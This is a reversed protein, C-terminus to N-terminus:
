DRRITCSTNNNRRCRRNHRPWTCQSNSLSNRSFQSNYNSNNNCIPKINNNSYTWKSNNSNSLHSPRRPPRRPLPRHPPGYRERISYRLSTPLHLRDRLKISPCIDSPRPSIARATELPSLPSLIRARPATFNDKSHALTMSRKFTSANMITPTAM